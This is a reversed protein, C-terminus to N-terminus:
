DKVKQEGFLEYEGTETNLHKVFASDRIADGNEDFAIHGTVGDYEVQPLIAKIADKDISGAKKMAELAVFYADYGLVSCAAITTNGGNNALATSDSEMWDKFNKDFTPNGGEVYFTSCYIDLNKGKGVGAIVNSDFTDGAVIPMGIDQTAAQELFLAAAEVSIPAVCIQCGENKAKTIYSTFDSNGEQFTEVICEGGLKEFANKFYNGVGVSYDDGLKTLVYAKQAKYQDVALNALVTGQFPDLFCVRFYFDNGLTVQPNTCSVGICPIGAAGFVDSGAISVGSGYSGLVVSVDQSVLTQAASVAKDNSSENDVIVLEVKYTKGGVEVTPQVVNAYQSGLTEQKGPAGNDGSAPQFIGIKVVDTETKDDPTPTPNNGGGGGCAALALVMVLALIVALVNKM